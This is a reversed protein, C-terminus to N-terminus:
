VRGGSHQEFAEELAARLGKKAPAGTSAPTATRPSVAKQRARAAAEAAKKAQEAKDAAERQQREAAVLEAHRPLALAQSYASELDDALGADLLQAMTERVTEYHPHVPNGTADRQQEFGQIQQKSYLEAIKADVLKAVDVQTAPPQYPQVQPNFYVKGDNGQQFLSQLPVQYDQALKLFMGLKQEPAASTLAKHANALQSVFRAPDIGNQQLDPLFPAIADGLPALRDYESKYTSVGKAYEGERQNIYDAVKPDIKEWDAHYDKKWSKPPKPRQVPPAVPQVDTTAAPTETADKAIFKGDPGRPRDDPKVEVAPTEVAPTEVPTEPETHETVAAEITERLTPQPAGELEPM